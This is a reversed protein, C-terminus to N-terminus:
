LSPQKHTTARVACAHGCHVQRKFRTQFLRNCFPCTKTYPKYGSDWKRKPSEIVIHEPGWHPDGYRQYRVLHEICWTEYQGNQKRKRPEKCGKIGCLVSRANKRGSKASLPTALYSELEVANRTIRLRRKQAAEEACTECHLCGARYHVNQCRVCVRGNGVAMKRRRLGSLRRKGSPIM